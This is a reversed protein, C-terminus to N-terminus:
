PSTKNKEALYKEFASQMQPKKNVQKIPKSKRFSILRLQNLTISIDLATNRFQKYYCIDDEKEIITIWYPKKIVLNGDSDRILM